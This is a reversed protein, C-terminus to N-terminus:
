KAWPGPIGPVAGAAAAAAGMAAVVTAVGFQGFVGACPTGFYVTAASLWAAPDQVKCGIAVM